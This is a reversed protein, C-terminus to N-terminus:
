ANNNMKSRSLGIRLRQRQVHDLHTNVFKNLDGEKFQELEEKTMKNVIKQLIFHYYNINFKDMCDEMLKNTLVTNFKYGSAEIAKLEEFFAFMDDNDKNVIKRVIFDANKNFDDGIETILQKLASSYSGTRKIFETFADEYNKKSIHGNMSRLSSGRSCFRHLSFCSFSIM